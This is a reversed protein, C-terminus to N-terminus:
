KIKITKPKAEEPLEREVKITLLGDKLVAEKVVMWEGLVFKQTWLRKAIGQHIVKSDEEEEKEVSKVTLLDKEVVVEIDEKTYGALALEVRYNNEDVKILNYPPFSTSKVRTLDNWRDIQDQFGLFFQNSLFDALTLPKTTPTKAYDYKGWQHDKKEWPVPYGSAM